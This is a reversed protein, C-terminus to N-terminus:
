VELASAARRALELATRPDDALVTVHGMKRGPVSPRKGYLHVHAGQVALAVALGRPEPAGTGLVNVM